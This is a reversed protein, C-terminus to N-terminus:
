AVAKKDHGAMSFVCRMGLGVERLVTYNQLADSEFSLDPVMGM